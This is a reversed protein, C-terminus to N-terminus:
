KKFNKIFNFLLVFLYGFGILFIIIRTWNIPFSKKATVTNDDEPNLDILTKGEYPNGGLLWSFSDKVSRMITSGIGENEM